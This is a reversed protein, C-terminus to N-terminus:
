SRRRIAFRSDGTRIFARWAADNLVAMRAYCAACIDHARADAKTWRRACHVRQDRITTGRCPELALATADPWLELARPALVSQLHVGNM